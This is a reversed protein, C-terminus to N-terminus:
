EPFWKRWLRKARWLLNDLPGPNLRCGLSYTAGSVTGSESYSVAIEAADTQWSDGADSMASRWDGVAADYHDYATDVTASDGPPGLIVQVQARSMGERIRDFSERTIRDTQPWLVFVGATALVALGVAALLKRRRM